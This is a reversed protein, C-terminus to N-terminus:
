RSRTIVSADVWFIDDPGNRGSTFFLYKGSVQLFQRRPLTM